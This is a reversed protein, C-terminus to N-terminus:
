RNSRMLQDLFEFVDGEWKPVALYVFDHGERTTRGFPPYIVLRHRRGFRQM